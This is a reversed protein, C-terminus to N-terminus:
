QPLRVGPLKRSWTQGYHQLELFHAHSPAPKYVRFTRALGLSAASELPGVFSTDRDLFSPQSAWRAMQQSNLFFCGAHPNSAPRWIVEQGLYQATTIRQATTQGDSQEFEFDIYVKKIQQPTYVFEFRNPQLICGDGALANFWALKAFFYPDHLLLDDELYCYFDYRGLQEALVAHCEFGLLTPPAAAAQRRYLAGPVAIQDLLHQEGTTCIVVDLTHRQNAVGPELRDGRQSWLEQPGGFVGWLSRLCQTLGWIRQQVNPGLSGHSQGGAPDYYHPITVLLRM